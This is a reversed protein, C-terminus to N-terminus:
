EIVGIEAGPNCPLSGGEFLAALVDSAVLRYTGKCKEQVEEWPFSAHKKTLDHKHASEHILKALREVEDRGPTM